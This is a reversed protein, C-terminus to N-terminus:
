QYLELLEQHVFDVPAQQLVNCLGPPFQALLLVFCRPERIVELSFTDPSPLLGNHVKRRREVCFPLKITDDRELLISLADLALLELLANREKLPYFLDYLFSDTCSPWTAM